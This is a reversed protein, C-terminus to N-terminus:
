KPLVSQLQNFGHTDKTQRYVIGDIVRLANYEKNFVRLGPNDFKEIRPRNVGNQNITIKIWTIEDDEEQDM